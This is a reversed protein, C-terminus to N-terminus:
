CGTSFPEFGKSPLDSEKALDEGYGPLSDAPAIRSLGVAPIMNPLITMVPDM